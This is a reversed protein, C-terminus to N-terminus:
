VNILWLRVLVNVKKQKLPDFIAALIAALVVFLSWHLARPPGELFTDFDTFAHEEEGLCALFGGFFVFL